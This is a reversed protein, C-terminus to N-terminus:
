SPSGKTDCVNLKTGFFSFCAVNISISGTHINRNELTQGCYKSQGYDPPPPPPYPLSSCIQQLFIAGQQATLIIHKERIVFIYEYM